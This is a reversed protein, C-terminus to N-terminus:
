CEEELQHMCITHILSTVFIVLERDGYINLSFIQYSIVQTLLSLRSTELCLRKEFPIVILRLKNLGRLTIFLLKITVYLHWKILTELSYSKSCSSLDFLSVFPQLWPEINQKQVIGQWLVKNRAKRLSWTVELISVIDPHLSEILLLDQGILMQIVFLEQITILVM